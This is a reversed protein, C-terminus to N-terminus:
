KRRKQSIMKLLKGFFPNFVQRITKGSNGVSQLVARYIRDLKTHYKDFSTQHRVLLFLILSTAVGLTLGSINIITSGKSRWLNRVATTFYNKLMYSRKHTKLHAFETLLKKKVKFYHKGIYTGSTFDRM